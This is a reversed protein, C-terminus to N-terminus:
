FPKYGAYVFKSMCLLSIEDAYEPKSDQVKSLIFFSSSMTRDITAAPKHQPRSLLALVILEAAKVPAHAFNGEGEAGFKVFRKLSNTM